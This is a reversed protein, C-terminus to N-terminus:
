KVNKNIEKESCFRLSLFQPMMEWAAVSSPSNKGLNQTTECLILSMTYIGSSM